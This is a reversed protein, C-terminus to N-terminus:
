NLTHLTMDLLIPFSVPHTGGLYLGIFSRSGLIKLVIPSMFFFTFGNFLIHGLDQHSFCSTLITWSNLRIIASIKLLLTSM